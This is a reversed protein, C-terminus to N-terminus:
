PTSQLQFLREFLDQLLEGEERFFCMHDFYQGEGGFVLIGCEIPIASLEVMKPVQMDPPWWRESSDLTSREISNLRM